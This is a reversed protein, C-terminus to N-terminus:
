CANHVTHIHALSNNTSYKVPLKCCAFFCNILGVIHRISIFDKQTEGNGCDVFAKGAIYHEIMLM